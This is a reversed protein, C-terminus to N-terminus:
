SDFWAGTDLVLHAARDTRCRRICREELPVWRDRYAGYGGGERRELRDAQVDPPCTLFLRLDYLGSLRPHLAYSGEVITLPRPPLPVAPGLTGAACDYARCALPGGTRAPRLVERELRELDMNGGPLYLWDAARRAPPLYYDDTHVVRCPLLRAALAALSSKGSGSRGDLAALAPKGPRILGSLARLAPLAGAFFRDVVRYHPRYLARFRESHRVAPCGQRRYEALFEGMGPVPLSELLALNEELGARSGRPRAATLRFLAATLPLDAEALGSLPLRCLGSGIDEPGAPSPDPPLAAWEARLGALCDAGDSILHAPGFESQFALKAYDQPEMGPYRAAHAALITQFDQPM